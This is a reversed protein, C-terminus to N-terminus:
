FKLAWLKRMIAESESKFSALDLGVLFLALPNICPIRPYPLLKLIEMAYITKKGTLIPTLSNAGRM